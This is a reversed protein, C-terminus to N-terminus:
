EDDMREIDPGFFLWWVLDIWLRMDAEKTAQIM